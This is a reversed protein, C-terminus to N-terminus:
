FYRGAEPRYGNLFSAADMEKKGAPKLKRIAISGSKCSVVLEKGGALAITGPKSGGQEPLVGIETLYVTGGCADVSPAGACNNYYTFVGPWLIFGRWKNYIEEATNDIFSIKGDDKRILRTTTAKSEDQPERPANGNGLREVAEALLAAGTDALRHSLSIYNDDPLIREERRLIVDGRDMEKAMHQVTVGTLRDGNALATQIPSAGRYSPLLSAHLNVSGIRPIELIHMPLIMGYSVVTFIDAGFSAIEKAFAPEKLDCPQLVPLGKALAFEKVPTMRTEKMGRGCAADANTVVAAVVSRQALLELSPMSFPSSGWFVAKM